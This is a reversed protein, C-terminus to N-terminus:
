AATSAWCAAAEGTADQMGTGKGTGKEALHLQVSPEPIPLLAPVTALSCSKPLGPSLTKSHQPRLERKIPVNNTALKGQPEM